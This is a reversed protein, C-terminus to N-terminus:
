APQAEAVHPISPINVPVPAGNERLSRNSAELVAVVHLGATGDAVPTEGTRCCRLFDTAAVVLPEPSDIHPATMEGHRYTVVLEDQTAPGLLRRGRNFVKIPANVDVDDYVAMKQSGVVTTRRVKVPDLWSVRVTSEVQQAEFSMRLAGVDESYCDTHRHGWASITDPPEGLMEMTISIDHAALDWLVNVDTRYKGLNLRASDLYHIKGLDGSHIIEALRKVAASHLFTHGAALTIGAEDAMRVLEAADDAKVTIPKEILVHKGADIAEAAMDFHSQPPTAVVVADVDDLAETLSRYALAHPHSRVMSRRIDARGDIVVLQTVEPLSAFARVHNSGWYGCGVIGVRM